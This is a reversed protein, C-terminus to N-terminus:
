SNNQLFKNKNRYHSIGVIHTSLKGLLGPSKERWQCIICEIDALEKKSEHMKVHHKFETQSTFFQGCTGRCVFHRSRMLQQSSQRAPPAAPSRFSTSPSTLTSPRSASTRPKVFADQPDSLTIIDEVDEVPVNELSDDPIDQIQIEVVSDDIVSPASVTSMARSGGPSGGFDVRGERRASQNDTQRPAIQRNALSRPSTASCKPKIQAKNQKSPTRFKAHSSEESQPLELISEAPSVPRVTNSSDSSPKEGYSSKSVHSIEMVSEAPSSPRPAMAGKPPLTKSPKPSVTDQPLELISEAPSPPRDM